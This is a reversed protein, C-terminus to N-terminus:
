RDERGLGPLLGTYAVGHQVIGIIDASDDAGCKQDIAECVRMEEQWIRVMAVKLHTLWPCSVFLHADVSCETIIVQRRM